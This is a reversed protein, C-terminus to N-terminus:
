KKDNEINKVVIDGNYDYIIFDKNFEIMNKNYKKVRNWIRKVSLKIM